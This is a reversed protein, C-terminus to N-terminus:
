FSSFQALRVFLLVVFMLMSGVAYIIGFTGPTKGLAISQSGYAELVCQYRNGRKFYLYNLLFYAIVLPTILVKSGQSISQLLPRDFVIELIMLISAANFLLALGVMLSAYYISYSGGGNIRESWLYFACFLREYANRVPLAIM